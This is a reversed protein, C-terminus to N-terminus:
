PLRPFKRWVDMGTSRTFQFIDIQGCAKIIQFNRGTILQVSQGIVTFPLMGYRNIILPSDTESKFITICELNFDAVVM